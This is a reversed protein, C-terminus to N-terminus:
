SGEVTITETLDLLAVDIVADLPTPALAYETDPVMADLQLIARICAGHPRGSKPRVWQSSLVAFTGRAALYVARYWADYLLRTVTYQALESTPLLPDFAYVDVTCLEEITGIPRPNRGPQRAEVVAGM